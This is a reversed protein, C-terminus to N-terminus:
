WDQETQVQYKVTGTSGSKLLAVAYDRSYIPRKADVGLEASSALQNGSENLLESRALQWGGPNTMSTQPTGTNDPFQEVATSQQIVNNQASAEQPVGFDTDTLPNGNADLVKSPDAAMILLEVDANVGIKGISVNSLQANVETRDPDIRFARVPEWADTITIDDTSLFKKSRNFQVTNGLNVQAASGAELVLDTTSADATAEFYIPLNGTTPGKADGMDGTAIEYNFQVSKDENARDSEGAYSQDWTQRTLNYWGTALRLRTFTTTVKRLDRDAQRYIETGAREMVFDAQDDAHDGRHEMYYGDAGDYQGVRIRDGATLSQNVAFAFSCALEFAVVYRPREASRLTVTEGAAPQLLHRDDDHTYQPVAGYQPFVRAGDVMLTWREPSYPYHAPLDLVNTRENIENGFVDRNKDLFEMLRRWAQSGDAM